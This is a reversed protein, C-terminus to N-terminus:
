VDSYEAKQRDDGRANGVTTTQRRRGRQKTFFKIKCLRGADAELFISVWVQYGISAEGRVDPVHRHASQDKVRRSCRRSDDGTLRSVMPAIM